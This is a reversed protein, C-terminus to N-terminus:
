LLREGAHLGCWVGQGFFGVERGRYPRACGVPNTACTRRGSWEQLPSMSAGTRCGGPVRSTVVMRLIRQLVRTDAEKKMPVSAAFLTENVETKQSKLPILKQM